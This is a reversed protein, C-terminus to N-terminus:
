RDSISSTRARTLRILSVGKSAYYDLESTTPYYTYGVRYTGLVSGFEAGALNVGFM